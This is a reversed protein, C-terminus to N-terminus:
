AVKTTFSSNINATRLLGQTRNCESKSKPIRKCYAWGHYEYDTQNPKIQNPKTNRKQDGVIFSNLRHYSAHSYEYRYKEHWALPFTVKSGIITKIKHFLAGITEDM